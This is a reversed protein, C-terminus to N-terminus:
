KRIYNSFAVVSLGVATFFCVATFTPMDFFGKASQHTNLAIAASILLAGIVLGLFLIHSSKQITRQLEDFEELSVKTRYNPSNVKRLVQKLQRPLSSIVDSSDRLMVSLTKVIKSPDYRHKLIESAFQETYQLLDFDDVLSRGMGEITVIAKFYLLLENPVILGYRAAITTSEMLLKGIDVNKFTLGHYPSILNRLQHAFKDVEVGETYPALDVFEYALQEYDENALALLMVSISERIKISLRGVIGFDVVGIQNNPLIFINGAHLDGHFLGDRFVMKLFARLGEEVVFNPSVGMLKTANAESLRKGILEEMTLVKETTFELYVKPIKVVPDGEFNAAVRLMNNAEIIFNTEYDLAKFFEDVMGVPNYVRSEPVYRDLLSAINYLIGLDEQIIPIIKPRQVKIVVKEGTKLVARHVQAISAAALPTSDFSQFIESLPSDFEDQIVREIEEFKIATVNDQLKKFEEIFEEPVLDPRSSLLQGFKVFTPGLEEFALRLREPVTLNTIDKSGSSGIFKGLNIKEALNQFGHNAFM